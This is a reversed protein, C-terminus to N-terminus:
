VTPATQSGAASFLAAYLAARHGPGLTIRMTEGVIIGLRFLVTAFASHHRRFYRIRNSTMLGSLYTNEHYEGGFHVASARAEYVVGMGAKRVREMYDVEESYLFFTEDWDGVTQRAGSSIALAAGTAWDVVGGSQYLDSSAVIEGVGLKAALKTGLLADSWITLLSPERRLSHAITGDENLVKPAVMGISTDSLRRSLALVCGPQLRVDPNLVLVDTDPAITAIAANIGAAYGANRGTEIVKIGIPHARALAVSTDRSANDVVIIEYRDIGELGTELSDLLGPLVAASNYTVVVLAIPHSHGSRAAVTSSPM